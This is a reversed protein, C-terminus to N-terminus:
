VAEAKLELPVVNPHKSKMHRQVNQFTRTCCPCVGALARRKTQIIKKEANDARKKEASIEDQFRAADRYSGTASAGCYQSNKM